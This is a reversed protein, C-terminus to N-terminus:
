RLSILIEFSPDACALFRMLLSVTLKDTKLTDVLHLRYRTTGLHYAAQRQNWGNRMCARKVRECLYLKVEELKQAPDALHVKALKSMPVWILLSAARRM